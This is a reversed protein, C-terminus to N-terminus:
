HSGANKLDQIRASTKTYAMFQKKDPNILRDKKLDDRVYNMGIWDHHHDLAKMIWPEISYYEPYWDYYKALADRYGWVGDISYIRFCFRAKSPFKATAKSLSFAMQIHVGQGDAGVKFVCPHRAPIALAVGGKECEL